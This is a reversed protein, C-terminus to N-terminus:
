DIRYIRVAHVIVGHYEDLFGVYAPGDAAVFMHNDQLLLKGDLFVRLTNVKRELRVTYPKGGVPTYYPTEAVCTESKGVVWALENLGSIGKPLAVRWGVPIAMALEKGTWRPPTGCAIFMNFNNDLGGCKLYHEADSKGRDKPPPIVQAVYSMVVEYAFNGEVPEKRYLGPGANPGCLILRGNDPHVFQPQRSSWADSLLASGSSDLLCEKNASPLIDSVPVMPVEALTKEESPSLPAAHIELHRFWIGYDWLGLHSGFGFRSHLVGALPAADQYRMVLTDDIWLRLTNGDRSAVATHWKTQDFGKPLRFRQVLEGERKLNCGSASLTLYYGLRHSHGYGPGAMWFGLDGEKTFMFEVSAWYSAALPWSSWVVKNAYVGFVRCGMNETFVAEGGYQGGSIRFLSADSPSLLSATQAPWSKTEAKLADVAEPPPYAGQRRLDEAQKRIAAAEDKKGQADLVYALNHMCLLTDPDDREHIRQRIALLQRDMDEAEAYKGQWASIAAQEIMTALTAPHDKGLRQQRAYLKEKQMEEDMGGHSIDDFALALKKLVDTIEPHRKGVDMEQMRLAERRMHEARAPDNFGLFSNVFFQTVAEAM